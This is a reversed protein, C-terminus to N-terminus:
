GQFDAKIDMVMLICAKEWFDLVKKSHKSLSPQYLEGDLLM